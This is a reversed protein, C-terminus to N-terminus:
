SRMALSKEWVKSTARSNGGAMKVGRDAEGEGGGDVEERGQKPIGRM